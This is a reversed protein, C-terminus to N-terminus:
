LGTMGPAVVTLGARRAVALLREDYAVFAELEQGTVAAVHEATALHIADLSRLDPDPYAAARTILQSSLAVVGIGRLVEAARDLRDPGSRRTARILEVEILVSSLVPTQRRGTLWGSLEHSHQEIRVLKM